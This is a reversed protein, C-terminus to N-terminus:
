TSRNRKIGKEELNKVKPMATRDKPTNKLFTVM